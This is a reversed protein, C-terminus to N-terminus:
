KKEKKIEKEKKEREERRRGEKHVYRGEICAKRRSSTM